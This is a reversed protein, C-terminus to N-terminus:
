FDLVEKENKIPYTIVTFIKGESSDSSRQVTKEPADETLILSEAEM